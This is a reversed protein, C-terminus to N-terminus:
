ATEQERDLEELAARLQANGLDLIRRRCEEYRRKWPVGAADGKDAASAAVGAADSNDEAIPGQPGEWLSGFAGEIQALAGIFTTQFLTRLRSKTV